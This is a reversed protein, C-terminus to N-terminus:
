PSHAFPSLRSSVVELVGDPDPVDQLREATGGAMLRVNGRGRKLVLYISGCNFRKALTGQSIVIDSVDGYLIYKPKRLFRRIELREEGLEFVTRQKTFAYTALLGVTLTLYIFYNVLTSPNIELFLSFVGIAIMGKIFTKTVAPRLKQGTVEPAESTSGAPLRKAM